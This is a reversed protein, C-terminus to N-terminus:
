NTLPEKEKEWIELAEEYSDAKISKPKFEAGGPFHYLEKEKRFEELFRNICDDAIVRYRIPCFHYIVGNIQVARHQGNLPAECHGCVIKVADRMIKEKLLIRLELGTLTERSVKKNSLFVRM